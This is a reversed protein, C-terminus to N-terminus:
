ISKVRSFLEEDILGQDCLMIFVDVPDIDFMELVEEFSKESLEEIIFEEIKTKMM